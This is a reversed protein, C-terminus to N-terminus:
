PIHITAYHATPPIILVEINRVNHTGSDGNNMPIDIETIKDSRNGDRQPVTIEIVKPNSANNRSSRVGSTSFNTRAITSQNSSDTLMGNSSPISPLRVRLIALALPAAFISTFLIITLLKKMIKDRRYPTELKRSLPMTLDSTRCDWEIKRRM